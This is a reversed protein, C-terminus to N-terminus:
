RTPTLDPAGRSQGCRAAGLEGGTDKDICSAVEGSRNFKLPLFENELLNERVRLTNEEREKRTRRSEATRPLAPLAKAQRALLEAPCLPRGRREEGNM